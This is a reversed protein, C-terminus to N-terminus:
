NAKALKVHKKAIDWQLDRLRGGKKVFENVTMGDKILKFSKNGPTGDRRGDTETIKTITSEPDLRGARTGTSKAKPASKTATAMVPIEQPLTTSNLKELTPRLAAWTRREATERDAFRKVPKAGADFANFLDVLTGTSLKTIDEPRTIYVAQDTDTGVSDTKIVAFPALRVKIATM